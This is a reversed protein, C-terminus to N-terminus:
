HLRVGILLVLIDLAALCALPPVVLPHRHRFTKALLVRLALANALSGLVILIPYFVIVQAYILSYEVYASKNALLDYPPLLSKFPVSYNFLTDNPSQSSIRISTYPPSSPGLETQDIPLSSQSSM